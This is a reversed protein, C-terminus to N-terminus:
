QHPRQQRIDVGHVHLMWALREGYDQGFHHRSMPPLLHEVVLGRESELCGKQEPRANNDCVHRIMQAAATSRAQHPNILRRCWTDPVAGIASATHRTARTYDAPRIARSVSHSRLAASRM